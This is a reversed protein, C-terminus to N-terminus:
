QIKKGLLMYESLPLEEFLDLVQRLDVDLEPVFDTIMETLVLQFYGLAATIPPEEKKTLYLFHLM